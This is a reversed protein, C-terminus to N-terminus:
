VFSRKLLTLLTSEKVEHEMILQYLHSVIQNLYNRNALFEQPSSKEIVFDIENAQKQIENHEINLSNMLPTGILPSLEQDERDWHKRLGDELYGMTQKLSFRKSNLAQLQEHSLNTLENWEMGSWDETLSAVTKIHGKIGEHEQILSDITNLENPLAVCGSQIIIV